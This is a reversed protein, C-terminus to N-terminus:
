TLTMPSAVLSNERLYTMSDAVFVEANIPRHSYPSTPTSLELAEIWAEIQPLHEPRSVRGESVVNWDAPMKGGKKFAWRDGTWTAAWCPGSPLIAIGHEQGGDGFRIHRIQTIGPFSMIITTTTL